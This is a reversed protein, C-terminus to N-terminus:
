SRESHYFVTKVDTFALPADPGLERGLGSIGMGGFPTWYRV